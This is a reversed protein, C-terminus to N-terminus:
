GELLLCADWRTIPATNTTQALQVLRTGARGELLGSDAPPGYRHLYDRLRADLGPLAQLLGSDETADAAVRRATHVLGAWGHCVSADRLLALQGEDRVCGALADEATRQRRADALALAALQQARALGPTGYCWSPRQPGSQHVTTSRQEGRSILGPWWVGTGADCRWRHLWTTIREIADAQGAVTIGRRMATALLALPGSIGHALGLNGHGGRWRSATQGRPGTRCWWGPLLDGDHRIPKTLRILYTLVQELLDSRGHRHLLGTGIGTLGSILDFERVLPLEARDIREHARALRHRTLTAIHRDLISQPAAYGDHGAAHLTFAVAPVGRFLAAADPKATVPGRAMAAVWQRASDWSGIGSRAGPWPM